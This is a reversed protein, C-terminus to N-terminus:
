QKGLSEAIKEVIKELGESKACILMADKEQKSACTEKPDSPEIVIRSVDFTVTNSNAQYTKQDTMGYKGGGINSFYWVKPYDFHLSHGQYTLFGKEFVRSIETASLPALSSQFSSSTEAPVSAPATDQKANPQPESSPISSSSPEVPTAAEASFSTKFFDVISFYTNKTVEDQSLLRLEYCNKGGKVYTKVIREEGNKLTRRIGTLEGVKVRTEDYFLNQDRDKLWIELPDKVALFQYVIMVPKREPDSSRFFTVKDQEKRLDWESPYSFSFEYGVEQFLKVGSDAMIEITSVDMIRQGGTVTDRVFGRVKVQKGEFDALSLKSSELLVVLRDDKELRHTGEQYISVGLVKVAGDYQKMQKKYLDSDPSPVQSDDYDQPSGNSPPTPLVKKIVTLAIFVGVLLILM